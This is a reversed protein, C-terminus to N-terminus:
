GRPLKPEVLRAVQEALECAPATQDHVAGVTVSSSDTIAIDVDCFGPVNHELRRGQHDGIPLETVTRDTTNLDDLGADLNLAVGVTGNGAGKNWQCFPSGGLTDPKGEPLELQAREDATLLECPALEVLDPGTDTPTSTPASTEPSTSSGNITTEAASPTGPEEGGCASLSALATAAVAVARWFRVRIM